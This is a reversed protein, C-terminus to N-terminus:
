PAGASEKSSYCLILKQETHGHPSARMGHKFRFSVHLGLVKISLLSSPTRLYMYKYRYRYRYRYRYVYEHLELFIAPLRLGWM